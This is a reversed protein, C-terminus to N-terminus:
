YVESESANTGAAPEAASVSSVVPQLVSAAMICAMAAAGIHKWKKKM